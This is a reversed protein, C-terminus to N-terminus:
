LNRIAGRDTSGKIRMVASVVQKLSKINHFDQTTQGPKLSKFDRKPPKLCGQSSIITFKLYHSSLRMPSSQRHFKLHHILMM